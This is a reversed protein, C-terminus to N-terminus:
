GRDGDSASGSRAMRRAWGHEERICLIGAASILSPLALAIVTAQYCFHMAMLLGIAAPGFRSGMRGFGFNYAMATSRMSPPYYMPIYSNVISQAGNFGAGALGALAM